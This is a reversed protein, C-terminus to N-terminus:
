PRDRVHSVPVTFVAFSSTVTKVTFPRAPPTSRQRESEHAEASEVGRLLWNRLEPVAEVARLLKDIAASQFVTGREWRVVTKPGVGLVKEFEQQTLGMSERIARIRTPALLGEEARIRESLERQMADFEDIDVFYEGCSTCTPV